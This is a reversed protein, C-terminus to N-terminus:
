NGVFGRINWNINIAQKSYQRLSQWQNESDALLWDGNEAAPGSDCGISALNSNHEVVICIWLDEGTLPIAPMLNYHNWSNAAVGSSIDQEYLLQGPESNTGPGYIRVICQTPLNQLFFDVATLKQGTFASTQSPTFRAAAEHIGAPLFPASQNPGDYNLDPDPLSVEKQCALFLFAFSFTFLLVKKM